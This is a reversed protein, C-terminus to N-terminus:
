QQGGTSGITRTSQGSINFTSGGNVNFNQGITSGSANVEINTSSGDPAGARFSNGVSGDGSVNLQTNSSIEINEGISDGSFGSPNQNALDEPLNIVTDFQAQAHTSCTALVFITLLLNQLTVPKKRTTRLLLMAMEKRMQNLKKSKAGSSDM